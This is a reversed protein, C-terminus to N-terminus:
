SIGRKDIEVIIAKRIEKPLDKVMIKGHDVHGIVVVNVLPKKVQQTSSSVIIKEDLCACEVVAHHVLCVNM